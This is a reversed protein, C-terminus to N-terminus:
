DGPLPQSLPVRPNASVRAVDSREAMAAVTELGGEVQIMNAIWFSRHKAGLAGLAALVPPQSAQAADRLRQFVWAGKEAKTALGAAATLDAQDRLVVFSSSPGRPAAEAGRAAAPTSPAPPAGTRGAALLAGFVLLGGISITRWFNM